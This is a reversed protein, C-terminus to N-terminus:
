IQVVEQIREHDRKTEPWSALEMMKGLLFSLESISIPEVAAALMSRGAELLPQTGKMEM